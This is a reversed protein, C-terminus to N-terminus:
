NEKKDQNLDSILINLQENTYLYNSDLEKLLEKKNSRINYLKETNFVILSLENESYHKISTKM